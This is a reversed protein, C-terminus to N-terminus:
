NPIKTGAVKDAKTIPIHREQVDGAISINSSLFECMCIVNSSLEQIPDINVKPPHRPAIGAPIKAEFIPLFLVKCSRENGKNAEQINIM